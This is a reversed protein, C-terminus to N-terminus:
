GKRRAAHWIARPGHTPEYAASATNLATIEDVGLDLEAAAVNSELQELSSAGPIAVVRDHSIVWALAVQSATADHADAIERLVTLLPAIRDLNEPAFGSRFRRLNTPRHDRDYHGSLLGQALPSYAIILRDETQAFPILDNEPGRCTLSYQVQNSLVPAGLAADAKRWRALGYNSVGVARVLGVQRLAKMGRMTILDRIVPNAQHVQYLDLETVGLREASAVARQEVVFATPMVPFVKTAILAEERRGELAEGVVRESRGFGYIEATDILTVGLELARRVLQRATDLYTDGYGWEKSGFQWTGLGIASVPRPLGVEYSRV